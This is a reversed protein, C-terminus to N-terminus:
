FDLKGILTQMLARRPSDAPSEWYTRRAFTFFREKALDEELMDFGEAMLALAGDRDTLQELLTMTLATNRLAVTALALAVPARTPDKAPVGIDVLAKAAESHGSVALAALGSAAGRLLEQFGENKDSFKLVEVLYGVHSECDIGLLCIAAAISPQTQRPATRQIAALTELARKDGIKGLALAADDQLPGDLTAVAAIADVAYQAKYDGLAEIVASRFFDEGRPVERLLAQRVRADDGLVALARVLAPRVFEATEKELATLFQPAMARDPNKEFFSYAVIRLRDNPSALSERMSDITRPDNFGTLLVLSRYRVYGDPQETVAQLLAPVAQASATRRVTRSATTRTDYNLDGLKAIAGQLQAATVTQPATPEQAAESPESVLVCLFSCLVCLLVADCRTARQTRQEKRQARTM